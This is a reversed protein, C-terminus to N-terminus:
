AKKGIESTRRRGKLEQAHRLGVGEVRLGDEKRPGAVLTQGHGKMEKAPRRQKWATAWWARVLGSGLGGVSGM